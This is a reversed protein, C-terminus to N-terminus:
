HTHTITHMDYRPLLLPDPNEELGYDQRALVLRVGLLGRHHLPPVLGVTSVACPVGEGQPFSQTDLGGLQSGRGVQLAGVAAARDSRHSRRLSGRHGQSSLVFASVNGDIVTIGSM